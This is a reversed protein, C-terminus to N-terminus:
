CVGFLFPSVTEHVCGNLNALFVFLLISVFAVKYKFVDDGLMQKVQKSTLTLM